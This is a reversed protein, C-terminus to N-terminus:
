RLECWSLAVLEHAVWRAQSLSLVTPHRRTDPLMQDPLNWGMLKIGHGWVM